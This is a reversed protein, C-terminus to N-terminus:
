DSNKGLVVLSWRNISGSARELGSKFDILEDFDKPLDDLALDSTYKADIPYLGEELMCWSVNCNVKLLQKLDNQYAIAEELSIGGIGANTGYWKDALKQYSDFVNASKPTLLTCVFYHQHCSLGGTQHAIKLWERGPKFNYVRPFYESRFSEQPIKIGLVLQPYPLLLNNLYKFDEINLSSKAKKDRSPTRAM